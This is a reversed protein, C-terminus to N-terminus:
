SSPFSFSNLCAPQYMMCDLMAWARLCGVKIGITYYIFRRSIFFRFELAALILYLAVRTIRYMPIAWGVFFAWRWLPIHVVNQDLASVSRKDAALYLIQLGQICAPHIPHVPHVPHVQVLVDHGVLLPSAIMMAQLSATVNDGLRINDVM